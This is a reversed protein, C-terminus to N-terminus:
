GNGTKANRIIQEFEKIEDETMPRIVSTQIKSNHKKDWALRFVDDWNNLSREKVHPVMSYFSLARVQEWRDRVNIRAWGDYATDFEKLTWRAWEWPDIRLHGLAM